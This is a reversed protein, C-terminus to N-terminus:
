SPGAKATGGQALWEGVVRCDFRLSRGLRVTPLSGERALEYIRAKSLGTMRALDDAKLLRPLLDREDTEM